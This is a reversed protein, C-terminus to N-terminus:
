ITCTRKEFLSRQKLRISRSTDVFTIAYAKGFHFLCIFTNVSVWGWLVSGKVPADHVHNDTSNGWLVLSEIPLLIGQIYVNKLSIYKKNDESWSNEKYSSYLSVVISVNTSRFPSGVSVRDARPTRSYGNLLYFWNRSISRWPCFSIM